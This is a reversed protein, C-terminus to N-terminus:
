PKSKSLWRAWARMGRNRLGTEQQQFTCHSKGGSAAVERKGPCREQLFGVIHHAGGSQQGNVEVKSWRLYIGTASLLTVLAAFLQLPILSFLTARVEFIQNSFRM